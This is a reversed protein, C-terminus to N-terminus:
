MEITRNRFFKNLNKKPGKSLTFRVHVVHAIKKLPHGLFAIELIEEHKVEEM